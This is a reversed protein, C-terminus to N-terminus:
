PRQQQMIIEKYYTSKFLIAMIMKSKLFLSHFMSKGAIMHLYRIEQTRIM